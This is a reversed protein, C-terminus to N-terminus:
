PVIKGKLEVLVGGSDEPGGIGGHKANEGSPVM